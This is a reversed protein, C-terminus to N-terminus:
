DDFLYKNQQHFNEIIKINIIKYNIFCKTEYFIIKEAHVDLSVLCNKYLDSADCKNLSKDFIQCNNIDFMFLPYSKLSKPLIISSKYLDTINNLSAQKGFLINSNGTMYNIIKKDLNILFKYLKNNNKTFELQITNNIIDTLLMNGTNFIFDSSAYRIFSVFYKYNEDYTLENLSINNININEYIKNNM